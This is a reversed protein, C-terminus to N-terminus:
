RITIKRQRLIQLIYDIISSFFSKWANSLMQITVQGTNSGLEMFCDTDKMITQMDFRKIIEGTEVFNQRILYNAYNYVNKSQFCLEDVLKFDKHVRKICHREARNVVLMRVELRGM